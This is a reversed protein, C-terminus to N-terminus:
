SLQDKQHAQIIINEKNKHVGLKILYNSNEESDVANYEKINSLSELEKGPTPLNIPLKKELKDM